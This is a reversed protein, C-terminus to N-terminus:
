FSGSEKLYKQFSKVQMDAEIRGVGYAEQIRELLQERNGAITDLHSGTLKGWQAKVQSKYHLWSEEIVYWDMIKETTPRGFAVLRHCQTADGPEQSIARARFAHVTRKSTAQDFHPKM